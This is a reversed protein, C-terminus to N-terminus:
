VILAVGGSLDCCYKTLKSLHSTLEQNIFQLPYWTPVSNKPHLFLFSQSRKTHMLPVRRGGLHYALRKQEVCFSFM